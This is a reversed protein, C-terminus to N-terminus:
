CVIKKAGKYVSHVKPNTAGGPRGAKAPTGDYVTGSSDPGAVTYTAIMAPLMSDGRVTRTENEM